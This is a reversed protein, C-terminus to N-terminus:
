PQHPETAGINLSFPLKRELTIKEPTIECGYALVEVGADIAQKLTTAYTPDIDWAPSVHHIGTHAVHYFLVARQGQQVVDMLERLHKAGRASVADPFIGHNNDTLLTVSKVEVYCDQRNDDQLLIDIRSNEQGYKCETKLTAYGTLEEIRGAEIAEKVLGNARGTNICALYQKDIEVLEWTYALKRKPNKADYIWVTADEPQCNKMSGTNPCHATIEEGTDLMIDALFRKYRKLLTGRILPTTTTYDM